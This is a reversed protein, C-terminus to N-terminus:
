RGLGGLGPLGGGGGANPQRTTTQNLVVIDGEQLGNTVEVSTGNSLGTGVPTQIQQGKALVTVTKQSGQTKVARLPLTLVNQHEAITVALNATMGPRVSGDANSIAVTVPYTVVGSTVTGVPGITIVKAQYTAGPLADLTMLAPDDVAIQAMDVEAILLNVRLNVLDVISVATGSGATDGESFNVASVIGDFPAYISAVELNRQAQAVAVEANDLSAQATRTSTDVNKQAQALAIQTNDLAAQATRLASDNISSAAINYTSLASRYDSTASQLTAAETTMGIDTRWAVANYATQAQQLAVTVKDLVAKAVTLQNPNQTNTIKASDYNAQATALNAQATKLAFQLNAQQADFNAQASALNTQATELALQMDTTDLQMLLQDKKVADGIKVPVHAVTGTTQYGLAAANPATVNGAANVSAVLNGRQVTATQISATAAASAKMQQFSFFGAVILVVIIVLGIILLNRKVSAEKSGPTGTATSVPTEGIKSFCTDGM